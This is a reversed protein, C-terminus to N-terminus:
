RSAEKYPFSRNWSTKPRFSNSSALQRTAFPRCSQKAASYVTTVLPIRRVIAEGVIVLRRGLFHTTALGVLYLLIILLVVSIAGMAVDPLQGFWLRVVPALISATIRYLFRLVLLIVGAPILVLLGAIVRRRINRRARESLPRKAKNMARWSQCFVM